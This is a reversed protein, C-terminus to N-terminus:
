FLGALHKKLRIMFLLAIGVGTLVFTSPEPVPPPNGPPNVPPNSPPNWPSYDPSGGPSSNTTRAVLGSCAKCFPSNCGLAYRFEDMTFRGLTDEDSVYIVLEDINPWFVRLDQPCLENLILNTSFALMGDLYGAITIEMSGLCPVSFSAGLWTFTEDRSITIAKGVENSVDMDLISAGTWDPCTSSISPDPGQITYAHSWHFGGYNDSLPGPAQSSVGLDDFTLVNMTYQLTFANDASMLLLLWIMISLSFPKRNCKNNKM